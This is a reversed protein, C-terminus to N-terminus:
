VYANNEIEVRDEAKVKYEKLITKPNISIDNPLHYIRLTDNLRKYLDNIFLKIDKIFMPEGENYMIRLENYDERNLRENTYQLIQDPTLGPETFTPFESQVINFLRQCDIPRNNDEM